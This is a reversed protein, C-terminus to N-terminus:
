LYNQRDCVTKSSHITSQNEKMLQAIMETRSTVGLKSFMRRLHSAVTWHSINLTKAICKNPLGQAVLSAIAQEQPSLRLWCNYEPKSCAIYYHVGDIDSELIVEIEATEQLGKSPTLNAVQKVLHKFMEEQTIM